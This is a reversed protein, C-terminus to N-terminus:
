VGTAINTSIVNVTVIVHSTAEYEQFDAGQEMLRAARQSLCEQWLNHVDKMTKVPIAMVGQVVTDGDYNTRIELKNPRSGKSSTSNGHQSATSEETSKKGNRGGQRSSGSKGSEHGQMEGCSEAIDTGAALDCLRENHVEVITISFSDQYRQSRKEAITFLQGMAQLHLGNSKFMAKPVEDDDDDEELVLSYDGVMTHTKGSGTQGYAMLCVNYGDLVGLVLEETESYLENQSSDPSFVRDFEFSMPTTNSIRGDTGPVRERHVLLTEHSPVSIIGVNKENPSRSSSSVRMPRPRCYVRITGRLDQVENLLKRRTASELALKRRLRSIETGSSALVRAAQGAWEKAAAPLTRLEESTARRLLEFQTRMAATEAHLKLVSEVHITEAPNGTSDKSVIDRSEIQFNTSSSTDNGLLLSTGSAGRQPDVGNKKKRAFSMKRRITYKGAENPHTKLDTLTDQLGKAEQSRTTLDRRTGDLEIELSRNREMASDM